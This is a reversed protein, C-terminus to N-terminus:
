VFLWREGDWRLIFDQDNRSARVYNGSQSVIEYGIESLLKCRWDM